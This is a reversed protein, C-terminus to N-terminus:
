KSKENTSYQKLSEIDLEHLQDNRKDNEAEIKEKGSAKNVFDLDKIDSDSDVSRAKSNETKTKAEKLAMDYLNEEAKSKLNEIEAELKQITLQAIKEDQPNPEPKFNELMDALKPMKRLRAIEAMLMNRMVVDMQQGMTQLMFALEQAKQNDTEATSISIDIDILGSLDDRRIEVFESNTHRIVQKDDLFESNYIMWKRILPIIIREAINRVMDLERKATANLAGNVASATDGLSSSGIGQSFAKIGSISEIDNSMLQYFNIVSAPIENYKGEFLANPSMVGNYMFNKGALYKDKNVPDLLGNPIGKQGNNSQAFNDVVGRILATKIKQNDGIIEANAEGYVKFPVENFPIYFFPHMSDPYPNKRFEIVVDGVYSCLIAKTKGSDDEDYYGYYEHVTVKKNGKDQFTFSERYRQEPEDKDSDIDDMKILDVDSYRPNSKLESITSEFRHEIFSSKSLDDGCTLDFFIDETKCVEATPSNRITKDYKITEYYGEISGDPLIREQYLEEEVEEYKYDWGAKVFAGGEQSMVRALKTMFPYRKFSEGGRCFQKNIIIQNQRAAEVDEFTVPEFMAIDKNSVFPDIMNPISWEETKKIDRSIIKSKGEVENGYPKGDRENMWKRIRSDQEQKTSSVNKINTRFVSLAKKKKFELSDEENEEYEVENDDNDFQNNKTGLHEDLLESKM